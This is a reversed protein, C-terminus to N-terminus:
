IYFKDKFWQVFGYWNQKKEIQSILGKNAKYSFEEDPFLYWITSVPTYLDWAIKSNKSNLQNYTQQNIEMYIFENNKKCFYRTYTGSKYSGPPPPPTDPMPIFRNQTDPNLRVYEYALNSDLTEVNSFEYLIENPTLSANGNEVLNADPPVLLVNPGDQPNRGTYKLGKFTQFYYGVYPQKNTVLVYEGGNTYLDTIIQSNSFYM